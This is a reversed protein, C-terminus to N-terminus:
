KPYFAQRGEFQVIVAPEGQGGVKTLQERELGAIAKLGLQHIAGDHQPRSRCFTRRRLRLKHGPHWTSDDSRCRVIQCCRYLPWAAPRPLHPDVRAV